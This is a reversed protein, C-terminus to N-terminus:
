QTKEMRMNDTVMSDDVSTGPLRKLKKTGERLFAIKKSKLTRDTKAMDIIM